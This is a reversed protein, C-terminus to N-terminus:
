QTVIHVINRNINSMCEYRLKIFNLEWLPNFDNPYRLDQVIRIEIGLSELKKISKSSIDGKATIALFPIHPEHKKISCYLNLLYPIYWESRISTAIAIRNTGFCRIGECCRPSPWIKDSRGSLTLFTTNNIFSFCLTM